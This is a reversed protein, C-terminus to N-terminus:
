QKMNKMQKVPAIRLIMKTSLNCKKLNKSKAKNIEEKIKKRNKLKNLKQSKNRKIKIQKFAIIIKCM